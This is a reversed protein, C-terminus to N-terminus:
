LDHRMCLVFLSVACLLDSGGVVHGIGSRNARLQYDGTFRIGAHRLSSQDTYGSRNEAGTRLRDAQDSAFDMIPVYHKGAITLSL